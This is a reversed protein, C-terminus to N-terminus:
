LENSGHKSHLEDLLDQPDFNEILGSEEGKVLAQSLLNRKDEQEELLSLAAQVVESASSYRGNEVSNSIFTEYHEGLVIASQKEM